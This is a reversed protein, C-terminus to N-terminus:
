HESAFSAAQKHRDASDSVPFPMQLEGRVPDSRSAKGPPSLPPLLASRVHRKAEGPWPSAKEVAASAALGKKGISAIKWVGQDGRKPGIAFLTLDFFCLAAGLASFRYRTNRDRNKVGRLHLLYRYVPGPSLSLLGRNPALIHARAFHLPLSSILFGLISSNLTPNSSIPASFSALSLSLSVYRRPPPRSLGLVLPIHRLFRSHTRKM